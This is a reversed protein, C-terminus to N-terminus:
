AKAESEGAVARGLIEVVRAAVAPAPLAPIRLVADAATLQARRDPYDLARVLAPVDPPSSRLARIEAQDGLGAASALIVPLRQENLAKNLVAIVLEPNAARLIEKVGPRESGKDLLFSLYIIQAPTYSPDLDLAQGAFRLGYYEEAQSVTLSESFLQKKQSDWRWVAVTGLAPFRVKHQYYREAERALEVKAPPLQVAIQSLPVRDTKIHLFTALLRIARERVTAPQKPSAALYWLYPTANTEAREALIDILERRVDPDDVDLAALLPPLIARDLKALASLIAAHEGSEAPRLLAEILAPMAAAGARSLQSIAYSREEPSANLNKILTTLRKPDSLHKQVLTDVREVLGKADDRLDPITLLRQFAASGQRDHIQLLEEDSPNRALFGKLYGAAIKFQGLEIEHNMARWFEASTEPKKYFQRSDQGSAPALLALFFAIGLVCRFQRIV